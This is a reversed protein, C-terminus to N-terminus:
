GEFHQAAAIFRAVYDRTERPLSARLDWFTPTEGTRARYASVLRSVRAPGCNYAALVLQWDGRFTQGLGDLFRVAADTSRAPDRVTLSTLGFQAATAPMFQWLGAAGAPSTARPNLSSEIVAVYKLEEPLGRRVLAQAIMPLLRSGRAVAAAFRTEVIGRQEEVLPAAAAPFALPAVGVATAAVQEATFAGYAEALAATRLHPTLAAIDERVQRRATAAREAWLLAANDTTTDASATDAQATDPPAVSDPSFVAPRAAAPAALALLLFLTIRYMRYLLTTPRFVALIGGSRAPFRGAARRRESVM